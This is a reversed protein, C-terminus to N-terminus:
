KKNKIFDFSGYRWAYILSVVSMVIFVCVRKFFSRKIYIYINAARMVAFKRARNEISDSFFSLDHQLITNLVCLHKRAESYDLMFQTDTGYFRLNEDYVKKGYLYRSSIIMGSNIAGVFGSRVRGHRMKKWYRGWGLCYYLPSVIRGNAKVGPLFLDIDSNENIASEAIELFDIPLVSDQDLLILYEDHDLYDKIVRNYIESLGINEPTWKYIINSDTINNSNIESTISNDWVIIRLRDKDFNNKMLTEISSNELPSEGYVVILAMFKVERRM